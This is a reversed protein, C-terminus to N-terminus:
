RWPWNAKLLTEWTAVLLLWLSWLLTGPWFIAGWFARLLLMWCVASARFGSTNLDSFTSSTLAHVLHLWHITLVLFYINLLNEVDWTSTLEM